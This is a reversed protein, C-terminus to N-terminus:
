CWTCKKGKNFFTKGNLLGLERSIDVIAPPQCSVYPYFVLVSKSRGGTKDKTTRQKATGVLCQSIKRLVKKVTTTKAAADVTEEQSDALCRSLRYILQEKRRHEQHEECKLRENVQQQVYETFGHNLVHTSSTHSCEERSDEIDDINQTSELLSTCDLSIVDSQNHDMPSDDVWSIGSINPTAVRTINPRPRAAPTSTLQEITFIMNTNNM